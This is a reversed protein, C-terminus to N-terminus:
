QLRLKLVTKAQQNPNRRPSKKVQDSEKGTKVQAADCTFDPVTSIRESNGNLRGSGAVESARLARGTEPLERAFGPLNGKFKVLIYDVLKGRIQKVEDKIELSLGIKM